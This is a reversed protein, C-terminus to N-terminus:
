KKTEVKRKKIIEFLINTTDILKKKVLINPIRITIFGKDFSCKTRQIDSLAQKLSNNHQSGDVEINIKFPPIALDITKHGDNKEIEIPVNRQKLALYLLKTEKTSFNNDNFWNQCDRCLGFQYNKNSFDYVSDYIPYNCKTCNKEILKEM